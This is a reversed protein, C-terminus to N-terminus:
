KPVSRDYLADVDRKLQRMCDNDLYVMHGAAFQDRVINKHAAPTLGMHNLTYEAAFYPTAADYLGEAVFLQLYPNKAFAQRLGQSTDAFGSWGTVEFDWRGIGGGLV